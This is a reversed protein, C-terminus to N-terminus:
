GSSKCSINRRFTSYKHLVPRYVKLATCNLRRQSFRLCLIHCITAFTHPNLNDNLKQCIVGHLRNFTRRRKPPIYPELWRSELQYKAGNKQGHFHLPYSGKL